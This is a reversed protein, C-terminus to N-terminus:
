LIKKKTSKMSLKSWGGMILLLWKSGAMIVQIILCHWFQYHFWCLFFYRRHRMFYRWHRMLKQKGELLMLFWTKPTLSSVNTLIWVVQFLPDKPDGGSYGGIDTTWLAVGSMMVGQLARVQDHFKKTKKEWESHCQTHDQVQLALEAFTSSIDGSWLGASYRWSQWQRMELNDNSKHQILQWGGPALGLTAHYPSSNM